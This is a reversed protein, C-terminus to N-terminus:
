LQLIDMYISNNDLWNNQFHAQWTYWVYKDNSFWLVFLWLLYSWSLAFLVSASSNWWFSKALSYHVWCQLFLFWLWWLISLLRIWFFAAWFWIAVLIVWYKIKGNEWAIGWLWLINYFPILSYRWPRWSRSYIRWLAIIVPISILIIRILFRRLLLWMLYSESM